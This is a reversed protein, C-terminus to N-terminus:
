GGLPATAQVPVNPIGAPDFGGARSVCLNNRDQLPPAHILSAYWDESFLPSPLTPKSDSLDWQMNQGWTDTGRKRSNRYLEGEASTPERALALPSAFFVDWGMAFGSAFGRNYSNPAVYPDREASEAWLMVGAKQLFELTRRDNPDPHTVNWLRSLLAPMQGVSMNEYSNPRIRARLVTYRKENCQETNTFWNNQNYNSRVNYEDPDHGAFWDRYLARAVPDIYWPLNLANYGNAIAEAIARVYYTQAYWGIPNMDGERSQEPFLGTDPSVSDLRSIIRNDTALALAIEFWWRAVSLDCYHEIMPGPFMRSGPGRLFVQVSEKKWDASRRPEPGREPCPPSVIVEMDPLIWSDSKATNAINLKPNSRFITWQYSFFPDPHSWGEMNMGLYDIESGNRPLRYFLNEPETVTRGLRDSFYTTGRGAIGNVRRLENEQALLRAGTETSMMIDIFASLPMPSVIRTFYDRTNCRCTGDGRRVIGSPTSDRDDLAEPNLPEVIAKGWLLAGHSIPDMLALASVNGALLLDREAETIGGESYHHVVLDRWRGSSPDHSGRGVVASLERLAVDRRRQFDVIDEVLFPSMMSMNNIYARTAEILGADPLFRLTEQEQRTIGERDMEENLVGGSVGIGSRASFVRGYGFWKDNEFLPRGPFEREWEALREKLRIIAVQRRAYWEQAQAPAPGGGVSRPDMDRTIIPQIQVARYPGWPRSPATPMPPKEIATRLRQYINPGGVEGEARRLAAIDFREAWWQQQRADFWEPTLRELTGARLAVRAGVADRTRQAMQSGVGGLPAEAVPASAVPARSLDARQALDMGGILSDRGGQAAADGTRSLDGMRSQISSVKAQGSPSAPM